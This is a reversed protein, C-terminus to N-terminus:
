DVYGTIHVLGDGVRVRHFRRLMIVVGDRDAKVEQIVQGFFDQIVGRLRGASVAELLDVEPRYYGAVLASIVQDINGEGFLHHTTPRPQPDGDLMNLWKMVNLVGDRFCAVDDSRAIGGGLAETYLSPVGLDIAASISRGPAVPLPHGWLVPAGFATATELSKRELESEGHIYGILAPIRYTTGGSHLDIFFDANKM